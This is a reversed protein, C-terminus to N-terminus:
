YDSSNVWKNIKAEDEASPSYVVFFFSDSRNWHQYNTAKCGQWMLQLMSLTERGMGRVPVEGGASYFHGIILGNMHDDLAGLAECIAMSWTRHAGGTGANDRGELLERFYSKYTNDGVDSLAKTELYVDKKYLDWSDDIDAAIAHSGAVFCISLAAVIKKM